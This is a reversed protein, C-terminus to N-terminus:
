VLIIKEMFDNPAILQYIRDARDSYFYDNNFDKQSIRNLIKDSNNIKSLYKRGLQNMGLIRPKSDLNVTSPINLLIATLMRQITTVSYRRTKLHDMLEEYSNSQKIQSRIRNQFGEKINLIRALEAVDCSIVRYKLMPFFDPWSVLQSNTLEALSERPLSTLLATSSTGHKILENRIATASSFEKNKIVKDNFDAGVRQVPMLKLHSDLKLNWYAYNIGLIDNSAVKSDGFLQQAFNKEYSQFRDHQDDIKGAMKQFDLNPHESGFVLSKIQFLNAIRVGARAFNNASQVSEEVPIEVVLDAGQKLAMRARKWKNVIAPEGRQLFNGSMIAICVGNSNLKKGEELLYRHGFHFPNFEAIVGFSEM